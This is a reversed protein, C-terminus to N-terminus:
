PNLDVKKVRKSRRKTVASEIVRKPPPMTRRMSALTARQTIVLRKKRHRPM